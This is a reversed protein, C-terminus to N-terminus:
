PLPQPASFPLRGSEKARQEEEKKYKLYLEQEKLAKDQNGLQAYVRSLQFHADSDAPLLRVSRELEAAAQEYKRQRLYLKGLALGAQAHNDSDSLVARFLEEAKSDNAEKYAIMGLYYRAETLKPDLQAAKELHSTAPPLENALYLSYGLMMEARPDDPRLQLYTKFYAPAELYDANSRVLASGLTFVYEPKDPELLLLLRLATVAEAILSHTLSVQAFEYLIEPSNPAEKRARAMYAWATANDGKKLALGSLARLTAISSPDKELLRLYVREAEAFNGASVHIRGVVELYNAPAENEPITTLVQLAQRFDRRDAYFIGLSLLVEPNKPYQAALGVLIREAAALDRREIAGRAENLGQSVEPSQALVLAFLVTWFM